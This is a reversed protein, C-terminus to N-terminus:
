QSSTYVIGTVQGGPIKISIGGFEPARGVFQFMPGAGKGTWVFITKSADLGVMVLRPQMTDGGNGLTCTQTLRYSGPPVFVVANSHVLTSNLMAQLAGTDDAIGNGVAGFDRQLDLAETFGGISWTSLAASRFFAVQQTLM